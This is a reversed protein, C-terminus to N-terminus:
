ETTGYVQERVLDDAFIEEYRHCSVQHGEGIERLVPAKSKCEDTAYQCRPHFTCGSPPNAPSPLDGKLVIRNRKLKPNAQPVASLLAQTYPHGPQAFLSRKDGIEVIRGLYMVAVRDCLHKVVSLDHSIFLLTLDFDKKLDKLLNLIQSQISVDLASVPEDAIILKPNLVLARAIGIRQRQGGSFDHPHRDLHEKKLGVVEIIEEVKARREKATGIGHVELSELLIQRITKRPNLSAFPDQFVMQIDRRTRRMEERDLKALDKGGFLVEGETPENLRLITRGTTSKGCGSEGVIGVTEGPYVELDIGDVARVHGVVKGFAGAHIPFHQKLGKVQLLPEM